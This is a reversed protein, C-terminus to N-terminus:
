QKHYNYAFDSLGLKYASRSISEKVVKSDIETLLRLIRDWWEIKQEIKLDKGLDEGLVDLIKYKLFGKWQNNNDINLNHKWYFFNKLEKRIVSKFNRKQVVNRILELFVKEQVKTNNKDLNLLEFICLLSFLEYFNSPLFTIFVKELMITTPTIDFYNFIYEVIKKLDNWSKKYFDIVFCNECESINKFFDKTSSFNDIYFIRIKEDLYTKGEEQENLINSIYEILNKVIKIKWSGVDFFAKFKVDKNASFLTNQEKKFDDELSEVTFNYIQFQINNFFKLFSKKLALFCFYRLFEDHSNCFIVLKKLHKINKINFNTLDIYKIMM